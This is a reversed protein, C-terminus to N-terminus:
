IKSVAVVIRMMRGPGTRVPGKAFRTAWDNIGSDEVVEFGVANLAEEMEKPSWKSKVPEGIARLILRVLFGRMSTHYNIILTSGPTSRNGIKALTSRVVQPTLYMIVGEWIWCTPRHANHGAAALVTDLSEREFDTAVFTVKAIAPPLADVRRRKFTQTAPHDVEFVRVGALEPMRWARGDLGAGLIVLQDTGNAVAARVAADIAWTRLAMLDASVRAFALGSTERAQRVEAERKALHRLLKGSLFARATPDRFEPVHSAGADALARGYAVMVATRSAREANM